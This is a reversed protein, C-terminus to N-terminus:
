GGRSATNNSGFYVDGIASTTNTDGINVTALTTQINGVGTINFGGHSQSGTFAQTGSRLIVNTSLPLASLLIGGDQIVKNASFTPISGAAGTGDNTVVNTSLVGSDQIIKGTTLNYSALNNNVASAPGTVLNALSATTALSSLLVGSDQVVKGSSFTCVDGSVGTSATSVFNAAATGDINLVNTLSFGGLSLDTTMPNSLVAFNIDAVGIQRGILKKSANAAVPLNPILGLDTISAVNLTQTGNNLLAIIEATAGGGSLFKSSM